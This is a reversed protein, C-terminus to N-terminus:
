KPIPRDELKDSTINSLVNIASPATARPLTVAISRKINPAILVDPRHRVGPPLVENTTSDAPQPRLDRILVEGKVKEKAKVKVKPPM